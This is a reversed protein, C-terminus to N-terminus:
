AGKEQSPDCIASGGYRPRDIKSVTERSNRESHSLAVAARNLLPPDLPPAWPVAGGWKNRTFFIAPPLFADVGELAM